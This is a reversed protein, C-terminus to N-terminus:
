EAIPPQIRNSANRNATRSSDPTVAPPPPNVPPLTAIMKLWANVVLPALMTSAMEVIPCNKQVTAHMVLVDRISKAKLRSPATGPPCYQDFSFLFRTGTYPTRSDTTTATSSVKGAITVTLRGTPSSSTGEGTANKATTEIPTM